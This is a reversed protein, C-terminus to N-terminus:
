HECYDIIRAVETRLADSERQLDLIHKIGALNIGEDQSLRQVERLM